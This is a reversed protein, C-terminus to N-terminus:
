VEEEHSFNRNKFMIGVGISFMTFLLLLHSSKMYLHFRLNSLMESVIIFIGFIVICLNFRNYKYVICIIGIIFPVFIIGMSSNNSINYNLNYRMYHTIYGHTNVTIRVSDFFYWLSIIILLFGLLFAMGSSKNKM